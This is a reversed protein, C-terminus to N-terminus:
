LEYVDFKNQSFYNSLRPIQFGKRKSLVLLDTLDMKKTTHIDLDRLLKKWLFVSHGAEAKELASKIGTTDYDYLYRIHGFKFPIDINVSCTGVSNRLLFSDLPGEFVTIPRNMDLDLIGFITSISNHEEVELTQELDLLEYIKSLDYTLYKPQYKFNRIQYGLVLNTQPILNFIYLQQKVPCWSFRELQPQRRKILYTSIDSSNVRMLQFKSEITERPVAIQTLKSQDYLFSINLDESKQLNRNEWNKAWIIEESTLDIQFNKLFVDVSAYKGCNYCKYYFSDGFYLNGRKKYADTHSDGCYPCAFNYRGPKSDIQQKEYQTFRRRLVLAVKQLIDSLFTKKDATNENESLSFSLSVPREKESPNSPTM